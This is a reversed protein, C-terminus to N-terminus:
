KQNQLLSKFSQLAKGSTLAERARDMAKTLAENQHGAYIAM